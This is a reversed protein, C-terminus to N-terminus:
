AAGDAERSLIENSSSVGFCNSLRNKIATCSVGQWAYYLFFVQVPLALLIRMYHKERYNRDCFNEFSSDERHVQIGLAIQLIVLACTLTIAVLAHRALRRTIAKADEIEEKLQLDALKRMTQAKSDRPATIKCTPLNGLHYPSLLENKQIRVFRQIHNNNEQIGYLKDDKSTASMPNKSDYGVAPSPEDKRPKKMISDKEKHSLGKIRHPPSTNIVPNIGHCKEENACELPLAPMSTALAKLNKSASIERRPIKICPSPPVSEAFLKTSRRQSIPPLSKEVPCSKTTNDERVKNTSEDYLDGYVKRHLKTLRNRM